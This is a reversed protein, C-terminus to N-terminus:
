FGMREMLWHFFPEYIEEEELYQGLHKKVDEEKVGIIEIVLLPSFFKKSKLLLRPPDEMENIWFSELTTFPYRYPGIVVGGKTISVNIEKPPITEILLLAITAVSILIALIINSFIAASIALAGGIIAVSAYWEGSKHWFPHEPAKWKLGEYEESIESVENESM